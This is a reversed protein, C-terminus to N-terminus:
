ARRALPRLHDDRSLSPAAAIEIPVLGTNEDSQDSKWNWLAAVPLPLVLFWHEVVVLFMLTALLSWGTAAFATADPATAHDICLWTMLTSVTVSLPFLLNMPRNRFYSKLYALHQPLFEDTLNPVGFYVNLKASIRALWLVVFTLTGFQNPANWTLSLIMAMTAVIALEHYILTQTAHLFRQGETGGPPCPSVRTGTVYGTLFSIEHWAWVILACSFGCFASAVTTDNSTVWLGFLGMCAVATATLMSVGFTQEPMKLLYLVAGTSFWWVFIAFTIAIAYDL